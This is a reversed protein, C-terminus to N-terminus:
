KGGRYGSHYYRAGGASRVSPGQKKQTAASAEWGRWAAVAYLIIIGTSLVVYVRKLM